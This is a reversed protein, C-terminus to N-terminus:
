KIINQAINYILYISHQLRQNAERHQMFMFLCNRFLSSQSCLFSSLIVVTHLNTNIEVLDVVKIQDKEEEIENYSLSDRIKPLLSYMVRVFILLCLLMNVKYKYVKNLFQVTLEKKKTLNHEFQM